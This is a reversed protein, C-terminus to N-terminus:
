LKIEFREGNFSKVLRVLSPSSRLRKESIEGNSSKVLRFVRNRTPLERESM